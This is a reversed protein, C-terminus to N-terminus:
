THFYIDYYIIKITCNAGTYKLNNDGSVLAFHALSGTFNSFDSVGNNEIILNNADCDLFLNGGIPINASYSFKRGTNLNELSITPIANGQNAIFMIQPATPADGSNTIIYTTPTSSIVEEDTTFAVSKFYGWDSRFSIEYNASLMGTYFTQQISTKQCMTYRDDYLYLGRKGESIAKIMAGINARLNDTTTGKINVSLTIVSGGLREEDSVYGDRQAVNYKAEKTENEFKFDTVIYNGSFEFCGFKVGVTAM